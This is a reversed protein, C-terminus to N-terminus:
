NPKKYMHLFRDTKRRVSPDFALVDYQPEPNALIDSEGIFVLGAEKARKQIALPDIRHLTGGVAEPAGARAAHDLVIFTGGPKLVRAIESFSGAPDGLNMSGDTGTYWLEHPGLFWTVVDMSKDAADLADFHSKSRKVNPLRTGDAGLLADFDEKTYYVDFEAPSQSIVQGEDGVLRSIIETYYGKGAELEFVADGPKIGSFLLVDRAKRIVDDARSAETRDPHSLSAEIAGTRTELAALAAMDAGPSVDVSQCSVLGLAAWAAGFIIARKM